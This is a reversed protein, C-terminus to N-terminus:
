RDESEHMRVDSCAIPQGPLIFEFELRLLIVLEEGPSLPAIYVSCGVKVTM